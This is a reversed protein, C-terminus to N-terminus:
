RWNPIINDTKHQRAIHLKYEIGVIQIKWCLNWKLQRWAMWLQVKLFHYLIQIKVLEPNMQIFPFIIIWFSIFIPKGRCIFSHFSPFACLYDFLSYITIKHIAPISFLTSSISIHHFTMCYPTGTYKGTKIIGPSLCSFSSLFAEESILRYNVTCDCHFLIVRSCSQM